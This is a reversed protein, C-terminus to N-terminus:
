PEFKVEIWHELISGGNRRNDSWCKLSFSITRMRGQQSTGNGNAMRFNCRRTSLAPPLSTSLLEEATRGWTDPITPHPLESVGNPLFLTRLLILGGDLESDQVNILPLWQLKAPMGQVLDLLRMTVRGMCCSDSQGQSEHNVTITVQTHALSEPARFVTSLSFHPHCWVKSSGSLELDQQLAALRSRVCYIVRTSSCSNESCEVDPTSPTEITVVAFFRVPPTMQSLSNAPLPLGRAELLEFHLNGIFSLAIAEVPPDEKIAGFFRQLSSLSRRRGGDSTTFAGSLSPVSYGSFGNRNRVRMRVLYETDKELGCLWHERAEPQLLEDLPEWHLLYSASMLASSMPPPARPSGPATQPMLMLMTLFGSARSLSAPKKCIELQFYLPKLTEWLRADNSAPELDWGVGLSATDAGLCRLASPVSPVKSIEELFQRIHSPRASGLEVATKGEKTQGMINLQYRGPAELVLWECVQLSAGMAAYHWVSYGNTDVTGLSLEERRPNDPGLLWKLVDLRSNYTAYHLMNRGSVTTIGLHVVPSTKRTVGSIKGSPQTLGACWQIVSLDGHIAALHLVHSGNADVISIGMPDHEDLLKLLM